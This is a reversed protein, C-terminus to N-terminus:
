CPHPPVEFIMFFFRGSIAGCEEIPFKGKGEM